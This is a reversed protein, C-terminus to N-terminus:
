HVDFSYNIGVEFFVISVLRLSRVGDSICVTFGSFDHVDYNMLISCCLETM